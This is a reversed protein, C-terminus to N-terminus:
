KVMHHITKFWQAGEEEFRYLEKVCIKSGRTFKQHMNEVAKTKENLKAVQNYHLFKTLM